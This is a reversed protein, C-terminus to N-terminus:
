RVVCAGRQQAMPSCGLLKRLPLATICRHRWVHGALPDNIEGAACAPKPIPAGGGKNGTSPEEDGSCALMPTLALLAIISLFRM